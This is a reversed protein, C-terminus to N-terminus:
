KLFFCIGVYHTGAGAFVFLHWLMHHYKVSKMAYFITGVSYAIGGALILWFVAPTSNKLFQPIVLVVTWGMVLYIMMSTKPM